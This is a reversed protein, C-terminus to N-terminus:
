FLVYQMFLAFTIEVFITRTCITGNFMHTQWQPGTGWWELGNKRSDNAVSPNDLRQELLVSPSAEPFEGKWCVTWRLGKVALCSNRSCM